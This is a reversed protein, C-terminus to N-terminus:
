IIPSFQFKSPKKQVNLTTMTVAIIDFGAKFFHGVCSNDLYEHNVQM